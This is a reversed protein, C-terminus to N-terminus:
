KTEREEGVVRGGRAGWGRGFFFFFFFLWFGSPDTEKHKLGIQQQPNLLSCVWTFESTTQKVLPGLNRPTEFGM